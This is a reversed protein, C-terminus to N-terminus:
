AFIIEKLGICGCGSYVLYLPSKGEPFPIEAFIETWEACGSPLTIEASPKDKPESFYVLLKGMDDSNKECRFVIGLKEAKGFEFYKFGILTGGCIEGIYREEGSNTVNPFSETFIKNSGHPM